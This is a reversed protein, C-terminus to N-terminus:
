QNAVAFGWFGINFGVLSIAFVIQGKINLAKAKNNNDKKFSSITSGVSTVRIKNTRNSENFITSALITHFAMIFVLYNLSFLLWVDIM